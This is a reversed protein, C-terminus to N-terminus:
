FCPLGFATFPERVFRTTRHIEDRRTAFGLGLAGVFHPQFRLLVDHLVVIQRVEPEVFLRRPTKM